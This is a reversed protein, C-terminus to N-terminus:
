GKCLGRQKELLWEFEAAISQTIGGTRLEEPLMDFTYTEIELHETAGKRAQAFFEPTLATATSGLAGRKEFFLPVHFHARLGEVGERAPLDRLADPLDNWSLIKGSGCRAKVQHLYVPERFSQLARLSEADCPTSLAASVQIKSIRIGEAEYRQLSAVLDEFQMAVHCTDFCVGIHRRIIEEAQEAGCGLEARLKKRGTVLLSDNFFRVTEDTTELYCGPEPELGLHIEKGTLDYIQVLKKACEVLNGAMQGVDEATRIWPKFSCPVTSISGTMGAPLLSALILALADTYDRRAAERWDPRYVTEKVRGAHFKGHPFGNITFPYLKNTEFFDRAKELECPSQLEHAARHGLRLGLGFRRGPAVRERVALTKERIAAFNGAWTEGRHVNLCYTLHLPPNKQIVM